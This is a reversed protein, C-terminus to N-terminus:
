NIYQWHYGGTSKVIYYNGRGDKVQAKRCVNSINGQSLGTQRAAEAASPYVMGTEICLVQKSRLPNNTNNESIRGPHLTNSYDVNYKHTCWELNDVCNNFKNEDKHNVCPYNNPNDLFAEAVLRHVGVQKAKHNQKSLTINYYGNSFKCPKLVKGKTGHRPSSKVNGFNSVQYLGNM